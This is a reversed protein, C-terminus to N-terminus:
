GVPASNQLPAGIRAFVWVQANATANCLFTDGAETGLFV